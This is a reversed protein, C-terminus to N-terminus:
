RVSAMAADPLEDEIAMLRNYKATREGRCPAGAKIQGTGLGVALDAILPDCTDGSRHSVMIGYGNDRCLEAVQMAETLTGIQNPKLLLATCAGRQIGRRLLRENTVFLDDGVVQLHDGLAETMAIFGDWDDEAFPDEISVIPYAEALREYYALLEEPSLGRELAYLGQHYFDTAAADLALEVEGHYGNKDIAEMILDLAEETSQLPPAFGGEDGVNVGAPGYRNAIVTKLTQYVEACIQVAEALSAAGSPVVMHEQIALDNGAHEGGNIVNMFPVPLVRRDGFYAYLPMDCCSAATRACAASVALIANAGLSAKNDTGDLELMMKDIAQQERVDMGTVAPAISGTINAIAQTVGKGHFASGGDRLEIAEHSGTSAGSPVLASGTCGGATVRGEVTPNGRSDLVWRATVDTIIFESM